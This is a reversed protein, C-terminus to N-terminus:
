TLTGSDLRSSLKIFFDLCQRIGFSILPKFAKLKPGFRGRLADDQRSM